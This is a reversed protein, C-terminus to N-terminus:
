EVSETAIEGTRFTAEGKHEQIKKKERSVKADLKDFLSDISELIEYGKVGVHASAGWRFHLNAEVEYGDKKGKTITIPLELLLDKAFELRDLKKQIYERTGDEIEFHVGKIEVTM